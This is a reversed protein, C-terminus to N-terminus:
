HGAGRGAEAAAMYLRPEDSEEDWEIESCDWQLTERGREKGMYFDCCDGALASSSFNCHQRQFM